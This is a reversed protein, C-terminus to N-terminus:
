EADTKSEPASRPLTITFTTGSGPTSFVEIYGGCLGTVINHTIHLGLGSGGQGMRTTFFPDFIKHVISSSMGCGNDKCHLRVKDPGYAECTIQVIGAPQTPFAHVLSNLALNTIVQGLPGPFSDMMIGHELATEISHPTHKFSPKISTLVEEILTAIDFRRRIDTTQDLALQKFDHIIQAARHLNRSVILREEQVRGIYSELHSRRLSGSAISSVLHTETEDDDTTATLANGIPTNLEHAVGAVLRGLSALKEAEILSAQTQTLSSLTQQLENNAISLESTRDRVRTELTAAHEHLQRNKDQLDGFTELLRRRMYEMAHAVQGLENNGRFSIPAALKEDAVRHAEATLQKIPALLQRRLLLIIFFLASFLVALMQLLSKQLRLQTAKLYPEITMKVEVSGIAQGGRRIDEKRSIVSPTDGAVRRLEVFNYKSSAETVVISVFREDVIMARVIAEAGSASLEWLPAALSTALVETARQLDKEMETKAHAEAQRSEIMFGITGPIALAVIISFVVGLQLSNTRLWQPLTRLPSLHKTM